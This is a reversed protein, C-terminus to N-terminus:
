AKLGLRGQEKLKPDFRLALTVGRDALLGLIEAEVRRAANKLVQIRGAEDAAELAALETPTMLPRVETDQSWLASEAGNGIPEPGGAEAWEALWGTSIATLLSRDIRDIVQVKLWYCHQPRRVLHQKLSLYVDRSYGVYQLQQDRDFIAFVGIKGAFPAEPILGEADIYPLFALDALAQPSTM